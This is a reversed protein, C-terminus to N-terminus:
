DQFPSDRCGEHARDDAREDRVDNRLDGGRLRIATERAFRRLGDEAADRTEDGAVLCPMRGAEKAERPFCERALGRFCSPALACAAELDQLRPETSHAGHGM